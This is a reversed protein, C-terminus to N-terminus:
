ASQQVCKGNSPCCVDQSRRLKRGCFASDQSTMQKWVDRYSQKFPSMSILLATANHIVTRYLHPHNSYGSRGCSRVQLVLDVLDRQLMTAPDLIADVVHVIGNTAEQDKRVIFACNVTEM